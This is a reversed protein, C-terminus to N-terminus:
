PSRSLNYPRSQRGFAEHVQHSAYDAKGVEVVLGSKTCSPPSNVQPSFRTTLFM